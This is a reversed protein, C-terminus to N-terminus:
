RCVVYLALFLINIKLVSFLFFVHYPYQSYRATTYFVVIIYYIRIHQLICTNNGFKKILIYITQILYKANLTLVFRSYYRM